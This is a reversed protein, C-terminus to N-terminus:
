DPGDCVAGRRPGANKRRGIGDRSDNLHKALKRSASVDAFVVNGTYSFLLDSIEFKDRVARSIHFEM